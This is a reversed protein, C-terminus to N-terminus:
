FNPHMEPNKVYPLAYFPMVENSKSLDNGNTDIYQKFQNISNNDIVGKKKFM